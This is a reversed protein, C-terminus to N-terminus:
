SMDPKGGHCSCPRVCPQVVRMAPRHLDICQKRNNRSQAESGRRHRLGFKDGIVAVRFCTEPVRLVYDDLRDSPGPGKFIVLRNFGTTVGPEILLFINLSGQGNTSLRVVRRDRSSIESRNRNRCQIGPVRPMPPLWRSRMKTSM